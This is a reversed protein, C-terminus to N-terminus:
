VVDAYYRELAKFLAYGLALSVAAGIAAPVLHGLEPPGKGLLVSRFSEVLGAMPNVLYLSRWEEPVASLPYIVPSAFMWLQLMFVAVFIVDRNFTGIACTFFSIGLSFAVQLVLLLPLALLWASPAVRYYLM